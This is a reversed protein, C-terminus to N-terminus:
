EQRKFGTINSATSTILVQNFSGSITEGALVGPITVTQGGSKVVLAGATGVRLAM